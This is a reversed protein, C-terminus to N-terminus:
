AGALEDALRDRDDEGRREVEEPVPEPRERRQVAVVSSVLLGSTMWFVPKSGAGGAVAAAAAPAAAQGLRNGTLRIALASSRAREPVRQVVMTMSLPQAFGLGAGVLVALACLLAADHTLTMAGLAAAAGAMSVAILRTRGAWVVLRGIGIRSALSAGARLALIVGVIAPALGFQEGLVPMYATFIDTAALAAVSAFIAAAVGPTRVIEGVPVAAGATVTRMRRRDREAVAACATALTAFVAAVLMARTTAELMPGGNGILFGAALPGVLQGISVGATLLAFHQDHRADASELAIVSQSGLALALHGSGLIASAGALAVPSEALALLACAVVELACGVLLLRAGRGRDARRGLPIALLLPLLAYSAAVLGVATGGHGLGLLRYSTTPRVVYVATQGIAMAAVAFAIRRTV